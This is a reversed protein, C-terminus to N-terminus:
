RSKPGWKKNADQSPTESTVPKTPSPKELFSKSTSINTSVVKEKPTIEKQTSLSPQQPTRATESKKGFIRNM